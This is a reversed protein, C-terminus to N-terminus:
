EDDSGRQWSSFWGVLGAFRVGSPESLDATYMTSQSPGSSESFGFFHTGKANVNRDYLDM